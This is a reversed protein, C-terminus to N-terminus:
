NGAPYDGREVCLCIARQEMARAWIPMMMYDPLPLDTQAWNFTASETHWILQSILAARAIEADRIHAFPLEITPVGFAAQGTEDAGVMLHWKM